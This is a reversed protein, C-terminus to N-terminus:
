KTVTSQYNRASIKSFLHGCFNTGKLVFMHPLIVWMKSLVRVGNICTITGGARETCTIARTNKLLSFCTLVDMMVALIEIHESM